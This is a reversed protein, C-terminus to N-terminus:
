PGSLICKRQKRDIVVEDPQRWNTSKPTIRCAFPKDGDLLVKLKYTRGAILDPAVANVKGPVLKAIFYGDNIDFKLPKDFPKSAKIKIAALPSKEKLVIDDKIQKEGDELTFDYKYTSYGSRQVIMSHEGAPLKLRLPNKSSARVYHGENLPRKDVLIRVRPPQTRIVLEGPKPQATLSMIVKTGLALAIIAIAVFLWPKNVGAHKRVMAGPMQGTARTGGVKSFSSTSPRSGPNGGAGPTGQGIRSIGSINSLASPRALSIAPGSKPAELDVDVDRKKGSTAKDKPKGPKLNTETLTKKIDSASEARRTEMNKKLFTGLDEPTFDPHKRSMYRRLEKEFDAASKYRKKPDRALGKKILADLEDDVERNQEKLEVDIRCNKVRQITDVENEGQFLRRMSLMEWLVISLAFVDTRADVQKASIQEPSM